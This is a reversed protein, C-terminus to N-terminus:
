LLVLEISKRAAKTKTANTVLTTVCAPLLACVVVAVASGGGSRHWQLNCSQSGSANNLHRNLQLCWVAVYIEVATTDTKPWMTNLLNMWISKYMKYTDREKEASWLTIIYGYAHCTVRSAPLILLIARLGRSCEANWPIMTRESAYVRIGGGYGNDDNDAYLRQRCYFLLLVVLSKSILILTSFQTESDVFAVM